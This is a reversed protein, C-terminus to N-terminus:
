TVRSRLRKSHLRHFRPLEVTRTDPIIPLSHLADCFLATCVSSVRTALIDAAFAWASYQTATSYDGQRSADLAKQEWDCVQTHLERVVVSQVENITALDLAIPAAPSSPLPLTM